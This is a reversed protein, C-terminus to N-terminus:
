KVERRGCFFKGIRFMVVFRKWYMKDRFRKWCWKVKIIIEGRERKLVRVFIRRYWDKIGRGIWGGM